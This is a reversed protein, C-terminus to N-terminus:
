KAVTSVKLRIRGYTGPGAATGGMRATLTSGNPDMSIAVSSDTAATGDVLLETEKAATLSYPGTAVHAVVTPNSGSTRVYQRDPVKAGEWDLVWFVIEMSDGHVAAVCRAGPRDFSCEARSGQLEALLTLAFMAHTPAGTATFLVPWRKNPFQQVALFFADNIGAAAIVRVFDLAFAGAVPEFNLSADSLWSAGWESVSIPLSIRDVAMRARLRELAAVAERGSASNGYLHFSVFDCGLTSRERAIEDVFRITWNANPQPNLFAGPSVAPGGIRLINTPHGKKYEGIVSSIERYLRMYSLFRLSDSAAGVNGGAVWNEAPIDMENGVEWESERFGWEEVVYRVTADVYRRYVAWFASDSSGAGPRGFGPSDLLTQGIIIRPVWGHDRCYRLGELLHPSWEVHLGGGSDRVVRRSDINILRLRRTGLLSLQAIEAEKPRYEPTVGGGVIMKVPVWPSSQQALHSTVPNAIASGLGLQALCTMCGALLAIVKVGMM